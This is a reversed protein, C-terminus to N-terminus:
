AAHVIRLKELVVALFALVILTFFFLYLLSLGVAYHPRYEQPVWTPVQATSLLVDLVKSSIAGVCAGLWILILDKNSLRLTKGKSM